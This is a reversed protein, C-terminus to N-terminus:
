PLDLRVRVADFLDACAISDCLPILPSELKGERVLNAFHEIQYLFGDEFGGEYTEVLQRNRDFLECKKTQYFDYVVIGGEGGTIRADTSSDGTMGCSLSALAGSDFRLSLATFDDVGTECRHCVAEAQVPNEALIGTAFEIVYVGVDYLAGGALAPNFLRHEARFPANFCFSAEVLRVDGIRGDRVWERTKQFAPLTSCSIGGFLM